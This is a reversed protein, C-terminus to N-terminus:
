GRSRELLVMMMLSLIIREEELNGMEKIQTLYFKKGWFSPEKSFIAVVGGNEDTINYKPNLFYGTFFGLVPVESFFGDMIKVFANEEEIMFDKKNQEDFIEYTAKWLSRAGKRGMRGIELGERNYMVYSASWDIWQNAKISYQINQLSDNEYVVIDEKLKFLKQKVYAIERGESDRVYFQPALALVKFEFLIPYNM